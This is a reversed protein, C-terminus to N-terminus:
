RNIAARVMEWRAQLETLQAANPECVEAYNRKAIDLEAACTSDVAAGAAGIDPGAGADGSLRQAANLVGGVAAPVRCDADLTIKPLAHAKEQTIETRDIYATTARNQLRQLEGETDRAAQTDTALQRAQEMHTVHVGYAFGSLAATIVIALLALWLRPDLFKM